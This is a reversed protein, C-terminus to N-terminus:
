SKKPRSTVTRATSFREFQPVTVWSVLRQTVVVPTRNFAFASM